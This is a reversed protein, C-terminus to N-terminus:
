VTKGPPLANVMYGFSVFGMVFVLIDSLVVSILKMVPAGPTGHGGGEAARAYVFMFRM